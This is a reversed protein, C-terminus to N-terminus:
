YVGRKLTGDALPVLASIMIDSDNRWWQSKLGIAIPEGYFEALSEKIDRHSDCYYLDILGNSPTIKDVFSLETNDPFTSLINQIFAEDVIGRLPFQNDEFVIVDANAPFKEITHYFSDYDSFWFCDKNGATASYRVFVFIDQTKKFWDKVQNLFNSDFVSRELHVM